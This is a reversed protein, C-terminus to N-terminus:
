RMEADIQLRDRDIFEQVEDILPNDAYMGACQMWPHETNVSSINLSVIELNSLRNTLRTQVNEIAAERTKGMAQCDPFGWVTALYSDNQKEILLYYTLPHNAEPLQSVIM